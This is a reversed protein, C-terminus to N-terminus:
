KEEEPGARTQLACVACWYVSRPHWAPMCRLEGWLSSWLAACWVDCVAGTCVARQSPMGPSQKPKGPLRVWCLQGGCVVAGAHVAASDVSGGVKWVGYASSIALFLLLTPSFAPFVIDQAFQDLWDPM